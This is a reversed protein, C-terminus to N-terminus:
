ISDSTVSTLELFDQPKEMHPPFIDAKFLKQRFLAGREDEYIIAKNHEDYSVANIERYRRLLARRLVEDSGTFTHLDYNSTIVLVRFPLNVSGGKVEGQLPYRDGYRKLYHSFGQNWCAIDLEDIVVILEGKYGQWWKNTPDKVYIEEQPFNDFIFRTKGVGPKGYIFWCSRLGVFHGVQDNRIKRISEYHRIYHGPFREGVENLPVEPRTVQRYLDPWRDEGRTQGDNRASGLEGFEVWDGGKKCYEAAQAPTGKTIEIHWPFKGGINALTMKNKFQIFGQLHPTGSEGVEKGIILYKYDFSKEIRDISDEVYNNLTFVVSRVQQSRAM